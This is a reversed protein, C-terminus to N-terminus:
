AATDPIKTDQDAADLIALLSAADPHGTTKHDPLDRGALFDAGRTLVIGYRSGLGLRHVHSRGDLIERAVQEGAPGGQVVYVVVEGGLSRAERVAPM